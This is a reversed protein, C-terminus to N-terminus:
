DRQTAALAVEHHRRSPAGFCCFIIRDISTEDALADAV